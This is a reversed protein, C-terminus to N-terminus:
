LTKPTLFLTQMGTKKDVKNWDDIDFGIQMVTCTPFTKNEGTLMTALEELGPNHAIIGITNKQNNAARILEILTPVPACYLEDVYCVVEDNIELQENLLRLTQKARTADSCLLRDFSIGREQLVEGMRQADRQGRQNLSRAHDALGTDGWSSKAHRILTLYKKM